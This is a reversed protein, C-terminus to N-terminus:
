KTPKEDKLLEKQKLIREMLKLDHDSNFISFPFYLFQGKSVVLVYADKTKYGSKITEWKMMGAENANTKMLIQRSDIEYAFRQFLPKYQELQTVGTFQIVWFAVYLIAGVVTLIYIWYNPYWRTLNLVVNLIILALPVFAWFWQEKWLHRLGLNVYTKSDLAYKKTKIAAPNSTVPPIFGPQQLIKKAM